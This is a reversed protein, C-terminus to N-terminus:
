TNYVIPHKNRISCKQWPTWLFYVFLFTKIRKAVEIFGLLIKKICGRFEFVALASCPSKLLSNPYDPHRTQGLHGGFCARNIGWSRQIAGYQVISHCKSLWTIKDYALWFLDPLTKQDLQIRCILLTQQRTVHCCNEFLSTPQWDSIWWNLLLM